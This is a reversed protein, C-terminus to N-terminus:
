RTRDQLTKEVLIAKKIDLRFCPTGAECHPFGRCGVGFTAL